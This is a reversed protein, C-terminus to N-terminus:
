ASFSPARPAGCCLVPPAAVPIANRCRVIATSASMRSSCRIDSMCLADGALIKVYKLLEDNDSSLTFASAEGHRHTCSCHQTLTQRSGETDCFSACASHDHCCRSDRCEEHGHRSSESHCCLDHSHHAACDCWLIGLSNAGTAFIYVALLLVSIFHRRSM